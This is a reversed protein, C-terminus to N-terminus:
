GEITTDTWGEMLQVISTHGKQGYGQSIALGFIQHITSAIFMPVKLDRALMAAIDLDKMLLDMRFGDDFTRTLVFKPFKCETAWNKGTSAQLVDVVTRPNLGAKTALTMVEATAAVNCANLVNNVAKMIHGSGVNGMHFIEKGMAQFLPRCQEVLETKGGVMISLTGQEAKALGGSVPADLMEMGKSALEKAIKMTSMPYATSMDILITGLRAGEIVGCSGLVVEEVVKSNPLMTIIPNCREALECPSAAIEAGIDRAREIAESASDFAVMKYGASVLKKLMPTGMLGIGIFGVLDFM